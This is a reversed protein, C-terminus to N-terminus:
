NNKRRVIYAPVLREPHYSLKVKKLNELGSDDMINIYKYNKLEEAFARFIFQALGKVSLDTIEYLICFTGPSLAFGFTFGKIKKNIKVVGGQFGLEAYGSFAGALAIRSDDLMGQYVPDCNASQRQRKWLDYLRLCDKKDKLALREFKFDYHGTFYNCSARKSKFKNGKLEALDTRRCLYDCSKFECALGLDRYFGADEETINELHSFEPNKNLKDLIHFVEGTAGASKEQGLPALYLFAGIKDQFFVCLSQGILAWRINFLKRWIYINPFAYVSLEHKRFNLYRDFIKRDRLLLKNLRM